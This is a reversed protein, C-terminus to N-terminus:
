SPKVKQLDELLRAAELGLWTDQLTAVSRHRAGLGGDPHQLLALSEGIAGPYSVDLGLAHAIWVGGRLAGASTAGATPSIRLGLSEDECSRLFSAAGVEASARVGGLDALQLAVATTELDAGPRAWGGCTERAAHLLQTLGRREAADSKVKMSRSVEIVHLAEALAARWDQAKRKVLLRTRWRRIWPAPSHAPAAGLLDMARLAAWGITLSPAIGLIRLSELAALTDPASPEELRWQPTRYFSYGGEPSRRGLIYRGAAERDLFALRPTM